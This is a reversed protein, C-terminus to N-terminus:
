LPPIPGLVTLVVNGTPYLGPTHHRHGDCVASLNAPATSTIDMTVNGRDPGRSAHADMQNEPFGDFAQDLDIRPPGSVDAIEIGKGPNDVARRSSITKNRRSICGSSSRM